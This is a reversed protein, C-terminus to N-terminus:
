SIAQRRRMFFWVLFMAFGTLVLLLTSPIPTSPLVPGSAANGFALAELGVATSGVNTVDQNGSFSNLSALQGLTTGYLVGTVPNFKMGAFAGNDLSGLNLTAALTTAGSSPNVTYLGNASDLYLIGSSNFALANGGGSGPMTGIRTAIGTTTNITDLSATGDSGEAAFLVGDSRFAIDAINNSGTANGSVATGAGTSTNITILRRGVNAVGYLTTGNPAFALSGVGSFGTPGVLTTSGNTINVKYLSSATGNSGTVGFLTLTQGSMLSTLFCLSTFLRCVHQNM